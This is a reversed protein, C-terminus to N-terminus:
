CTQRTDIKEAPHMGGYRTSRVAVFLPHELLQAAPGSDLIDQKSHQLPYMEISRFYFGRRKASNRSAYHLCQASPHSEFERHRKLMGCKLHLYNSDGRGSVSTSGHQSKFGVVWISAYKMSIKLSYTGGRIKPHLDLSSLIEYAARHARIYITINLRAYVEQKKRLILRLFICGDTDPCWAKRYEQNAMIM